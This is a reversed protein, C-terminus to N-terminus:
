GDGGEPLVLEVEFRGDRPGATFRAAGRDFSALRERTAGLGLGFGAHAAAEARLPNSIRVRAGAATREVRLELDSAGEHSELDHRLANEVLPQLLLPPCAIGDLAAPDADVRAVLRDGYRLRQLELYALVFDVEERLEVRERRSAAVAYRLLDSLQAIATLATTREDSRVLGGIAHLANFLFHPELQAQLARLRQHELALRLELTEAELERRQRERELQGRLAAAGYVAGFCGVFLVLDVFFFIPPWARLRAPLERWSAGDHLLSLGVEYVVYPLYFALLAVLLLRAAWRPDSSRERQGDIWRFLAASFLMWPLYYASNAGFLRVLSAAEGARVLAAYGALSQALCLLGFLGASAVLVRRGSLAGAARRAPAALAATPSGPM